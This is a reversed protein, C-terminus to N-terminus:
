SREVVESSPGPGRRKLGAIGGPLFLVLLILALGTVYPEVVDSVRLFEPLLTFLASGILPGLIYSELGGLISYIQIHVSKLVDFTLPSITTNYHAYFSGVLGAFASSLSFAVLRYRNANIGLTEALEPSFRTAKWARGIRSSYVRRLVVVIIILLFLSLYYYPVKTSFSIDGAFPLRIPNPPPIGTIGGWGGFIEIYGFVKQILLCFLLTFVVFGAGVYRVILYGIGMAVLASLIAAVPMALWFSFGGKMVLLASAYAGVGWFASAGLTILGTSYVLSFGMGLAANILVLIVLHLLYPNNLIFPLALALISCCAVLLFKWNAWFM